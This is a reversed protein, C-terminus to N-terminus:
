DVRKRNLEVVQCLQEFTLFVKPVLAARLERCPLGSNLSPM